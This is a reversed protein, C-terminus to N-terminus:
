KKILPKWEEKIRHYYPSTFLALNLSGGYKEVFEDKGLVWELTWKSFNPKNKISIKKARVANM